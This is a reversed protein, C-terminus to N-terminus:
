HTNLILGDCRGMCFNGQPPLANNKRLFDLDASDKFFIDFCDQDNVYAPDSRPLYSGNRWIHTVQIAKGSGHLKIKYSNIMNLIQSPDDVGLELTEPFPNRADGSNEVARISSGRIGGIFDLHIFYEDYGNAGLQWSCLDLNGAWDNGESDIEKLDLRTIKGFSAPLAGGNAPDLHWEAKEIKADRCRTDGPQRLFSQLNFVSPDLSFGTELTRAVLGGLGNRLTGEAKEAILRLEEAVYEEIRPTIEPDNLDVGNLFTTGSRFDSGEGLIRIDHASVSTTVFLGLLGATLRGLNRRSFLKTTM